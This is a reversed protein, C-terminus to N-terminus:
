DADGSRGIRSASGTRTALDIAVSVDAESLDSGRIAGGLSSRSEPYDVLPEVGEPVSGVISLAEVAATAARWTGNAIAIYCATRLPEVPMEEPVAPAIEALASAAADITMNSEAAVGLELLDVGAAWTTPDDTAVCIAAVAEFGTRRLTGDSDVLALKLTEVLRRRLAPQFGEAHEILSDITERKVRLGGKVLVHAVVVDLDDEPEVNLDLHKRVDTEIESKVVPEATEDDDTAIHNLVTVLADHTTAASPPDIATEGRGWMIALKVYNEQEELFRGLEGMAEDTGIRALSAMAFVAVVDNEEAALSALIPIVAGGESDTSPEDLYGLCTQIAKIKSVSSAEGHLAAYFLMRFARERIEPPRTALWSSPLASIGSTSVHSHGNSMATWLVALAEDTLRSDLVSLLEPFDRLAETAGDERRSVLWRLLGLVAAQVEVDDSDVGIKVIPARASHLPDRETATFEAGLLDLARNVLAMSDGAAAVEGLSDAAASRIIYQDADLNQEVMDVLERRLAPEEVTAGVAGMHQLASAGLFDNDPTRAVEDLSALVGRRVATQDTATGIRKLEALAGFRRLMGSGLGADAAFGIIEEFDRDDADLGAELLPDLLEATQSPGVEAIMELMYMQETSSMDNTEVNEFFQEQLNSLMDEVGDSEPFPEELVTDLGDVAAMSVSEDGHETGLRGLARLAYLAWPVPQRRAITELASAAAQRVPADVPRDAYQELAEVASDYVDSSDTEEGVERIVAVLDAHEDHPVEGREILHGAADLLPALVGEASESRLVGVLRERDSAADLDGAAAADSLLEACAIRVDRSHEDILAFEEVAAVPRESEAVYIDWVTAIPVPEDANVAQTVAELRERLAAPSAAPEAAAELTHELDDDAPQEMPNRNTTPCILIVGDPGM